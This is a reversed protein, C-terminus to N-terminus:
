LVMIKWVITGSEEVRWLGEKIKLHPEIIKQLLKRVQELLSGKERKWKGVQRPDNHEEAVRYGSRRRRQISSLGCIIFWNMNRRSRRCKDREIILRISKQIINEILQLSKVLIDYIHM